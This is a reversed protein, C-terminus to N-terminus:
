RSTDSEELASLPISVIRKCRRCKLELAGGVFRALLSGCVCRLLGEASALTGGGCHECKM